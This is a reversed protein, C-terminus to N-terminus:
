RGQTLQALRPLVRILLRDVLGDFGQRARGFQPLLIRRSVALMAPIIGPHNRASEVERRLFHLIDDERPPHMIQALQKDIM